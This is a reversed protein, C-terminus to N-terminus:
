SPGARYLSPEDLVRRLVRELRDAWEAVGHHTDILNQRVELLAHTLGRSEAHSPISFGRRSRGTYPQNDGVVLGPEEALAALLPAPLRPDRDWLVGIHWPREFGQFVPTFSHMSIFVPSLGRRTFDDLLRDIAGHYPLFCAEARANRAAPTLGLNAPVPVGDSVAPISTPDDLRRNCDIVLRSYTSLVAPAALRLALDRTLEAIGIDWAIHRTLAAEDLGLRDLSAPIARGAHDCVFLIPAAGEPNLLEFSPPDSPGLMLASAPLPAALSM